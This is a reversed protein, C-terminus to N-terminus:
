QNRRKLTFINAVSCVIERPIAVVPFDALEDLHHHNSSLSWAPHFYWEEFCRYDSETGHTDILIEQAFFFICKVMKIELNNTSSSRVHRNHLRKHFVLCLLMLYSYSQYVFKMATKIYINEYFNVASLIFIIFYYWFWSRIAEFLQVSSLTSSVWWYKLIGQM